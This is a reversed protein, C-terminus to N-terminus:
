WVCGGAARVWLKQTDTVISSKKRRKHIKTKAKRFVWTLAFTNILM